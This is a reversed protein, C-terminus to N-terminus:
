ILLSFSVVVCDFPLERIPPVACGLRGNRHQQAYSAWDAKWVLFSANWIKWCIVSTRTGRVRSCKQKRRVWNTTSRQWKSCSLKISPETQQRFFDILYAMNTYLCRSSGCSRTMAAFLCEWRDRNQKDVMSKKEEQLASKRVLTQNIVEQVQTSWSHVAVSHYARRWVIMSPLQVKNQRNSLQVQREAFEKRREEFESFRCFACYPVCHSLTGDCHIDVRSNKTVRRLLFWSDYKQISTTLLLKIWARDENFSNWSKWKISHRRQLKKRAPNFQLIKSLIVSSLFYICCFVLICDLVIAWLRNYEELQEDDLM